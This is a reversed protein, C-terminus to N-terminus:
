FPFYILPLLMLGSTVLWLGLGLHFIDMYKVELYISLAGNMDMFIRLLWNKLQPQNRCTRLHFFFLLFMAKTFM